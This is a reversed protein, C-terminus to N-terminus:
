RWAYFRDELDISFSGSGRGSWSIISHASLSEGDPAVSITIRRTFRTLTASGGGTRSYFGTGPDFYLEGTGYAVLSPSTYDLEYNGTTVGENWPILAGGGRAIANDDLINKVVEIGELSIYTAVYSDAVVRNLGISRNLLGIVGLFGITLASIAVLAEVLTQGQRRSPLFLRFRFTQFKQSM